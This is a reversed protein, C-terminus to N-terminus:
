DLNNNETHLILEDYDQYIKQNDVNLFLYDHPEKFAFRMLAMADDKETEFLEDFLTIFEVKSPKWIIVNNVLKRIERPISEDISGGSLMFIDGSTHPGRQLTTPKPVPAPVPQRQPAPPLNARHQQIERPKQVTMSETPTQKKSLKTWANRRLENEEKKKSYNGAGVRKKANTMWNM